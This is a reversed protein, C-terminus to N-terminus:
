PASGLLRKAELEFEADSTTLDRLRELVHTRFQRRMTALHNTVTVTSLGLEKGVAAYTPREGSLDALDYREFVAFM